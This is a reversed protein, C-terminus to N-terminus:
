EVVDEEPGEPPFTAFQGMIDRSEKESLPGGKAAIAKATLRLYDVYYAPSFINFSSRMRM